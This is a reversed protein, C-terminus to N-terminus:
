RLYPAVDSALIRLEDDTLRLTQTRKWSELPTASEAVPRDSGYLVRGLGIQRM